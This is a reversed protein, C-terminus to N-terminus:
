KGYFIMKPLVLSICLRPFLLSQKLKTLCGKLLLFGYEHDMCASKSWTVLKQAYLFLMVTHSMYNSFVDLDSLNM